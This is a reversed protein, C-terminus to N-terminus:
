IWREPAQWQIHTRLAIVQRSAPDVEKWIQLAAPGRPSYDAPHPKCQHEPVSLIDANWADATMRAADNIPLGAITGSIPDPSGNPNIKTSNLRGNESSIWKHSHRLASCCWRWWCCSGQCRSECSIRM